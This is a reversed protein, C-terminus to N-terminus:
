SSAIVSQHSARLRRLPVQPIIQRMPVQVFETKLYEVPREMEYVMYLIELLAERRTMGWEQMMTALEAIREERKTTTM